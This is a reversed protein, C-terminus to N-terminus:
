SNACAITSPLVAHGIQSYTDRTAYTCIRWSRIEQYSFRIMTLPRKHRSRIGGQPSEARQLIAIVYACDCIQLRTLNSMLQCGVRLVCHRAVHKVSELLPDWAKLWLIRHKGKVRLVWAKLVVSVSREVCCLLCPLCPLLCQLLVLFWCDATELVSYLVYVCGLSRLVYDLGVSPGSTNSYSKPLPPGLTGM